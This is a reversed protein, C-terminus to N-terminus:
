SKIEDLNIIVYSDGWVHLNPIGMSTAIFLLAWLALLEDRTNTSPGSGIICFFFHDHNLYLSFIAGGLSNAIAGNFYGHPFCHIEIPGIVKIKKKNCHRRFSAILEMMRHCVLDVNSKEGDFVSANRCLLLNWIYFIPLFSFERKQKYWSNLNKDLKQACWPFAINYHQSLVVRVNKAFSCNIFM